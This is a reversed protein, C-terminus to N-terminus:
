VFRTNMDLTITVPLINNRRTIQIGNNIPFLTLPASAVDYGAYKWQRYTLKSCYWVDNSGTGTKLGYAKGVQVKGFNVASERQKATASKGFTSTVRYQKVGDVRNWINSVAHNFVRARGNYPTAEIVFGRTDSLVATHGMTSKGTKRGRTDYLQALM